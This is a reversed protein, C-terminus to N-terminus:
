AEEFVGIALESETLAALAEDLRAYETEGHPKM